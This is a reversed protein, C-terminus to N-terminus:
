LPPQHSTLLSGRSPAWLQSPSKLAPRQFTVRMKGKMWLSQARSFDGLRVWTALASVRAAREISTIASRFDKAQPRSGSRPGRSLM